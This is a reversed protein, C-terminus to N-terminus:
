GALKSPVIGEFDVTHMPPQRKRGRVAGRGDLQELQEGVGGAGRHVAKKKIVRVGLTSHYVFDILRLYSGAESGLLLELQEGVGGAGRYRSRGLPTARRCPFVPCLM